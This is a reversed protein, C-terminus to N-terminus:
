CYNCDILRVLSKHCTLFLYIWLLKGFLYLMGAMLAYGLWISVHSIRKLFKRHKEGFKKISNVGWKTGYLLLVGEKKVRKRRVYLFILIFVLFLILLAIDLLMFNM